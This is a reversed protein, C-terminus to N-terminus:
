KHIVAFGLRERAAEIPEFRPRGDVYEFFMAKPRVWTAGTVVDRYVVVDEGTESDRAFTLLEYVGGKYHRHTAKASRRLADDHYRDTM